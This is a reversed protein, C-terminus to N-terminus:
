HDIERYININQNHKVAVMINTKSVTIKIDFLKAIGNIKTLLHSSKEKTVM